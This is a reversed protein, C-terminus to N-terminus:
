KKTAKATEFSLPRSSLNNILSDRVQKASESLELNKTSQIWYLVTQEDLCNRMKVFLKQTILKQDTERNEWAIMKLNYLMNKLELLDYEYIPNEVQNSLLKGECKFIAYKLLKLVQIKKVQDKGVYGKSGYIQPFKISKDSQMLDFSKAVLLDYSLDSPKKAIYQKLEFLQESDFNEFCFRIAKKCGLKALRLINENTQQTVLQDKLVRAILTIYDQMLIDYNINM